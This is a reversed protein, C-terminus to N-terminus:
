GTFSALCIHAAPHDVGHRQGCHDPCHFGLDFGSSWEPEVKDAEVFSFAGRNQLKAIDRDLRSSGFDTLRYVREGVMGVDGAEVGFREHGRRGIVWVSTASMWARKGFVGTTTIPVFGLGSCQGCMAVMRAALAATFASM